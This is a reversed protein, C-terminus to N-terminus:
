AGGEIAFLTGADNDNCKLGESVLTAKFDLEPQGPRVRTYERRKDGHVGGFHLYLYPKGKFSPHRHEAGDRVSGDPRTKGKGRQDILYGKRYLHEFFERERVDSFYKKHFSRLNLGDAGEIERVTGEATVARQEFHDARAREARAIAIAKRTREVERELVDLEEGEAIGAAATEAEHTRVAFYGQAAAVEAKRPDGNMAVLYAAFRTLRFDERPRGKSKERNVTFLDGVEHGQNAAAQMAREIVPTFHQWRDYAMLPMLDRATWHDGREDTRKIADFPSATPQLAGKLPMQCNRCYKSGRAPDNPADCHPCTIMPQRKPTPSM